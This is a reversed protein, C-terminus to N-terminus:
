RQKQGGSLAVGREGVLTSYGEPFQEIFNHANALRAAEMVDDDSANPCGYRINEMVSTAFLVPEQNIYGIIHERLWSADLESLAQGDLEIEGRTPEYFRELLAAVTSKGPFPSSSDFVFNLFLSIYLIDAGAGSLGCLATVHGASLELCLESLVQQDIFHHITTHTHHTNNQPPPPHHHHAQPPVTYVQDERSPYSFTVDKFIVKGKIESSDLKKGGRLSLSSQRDMYEM